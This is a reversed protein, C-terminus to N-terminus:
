AIMQSYRSFPHHTKKQNHTFQINFHHRSTISRKAISYTQNRIFISIILLSSSNMNTGVSIILYYYVSLDVSMILYLYAWSHVRDYDIWFVYYLKLIDCCNRTTRDYDTMRSLVNMMRTNLQRDSALPNANQTRNNATTCLTYYWELIFSVHKSPFTIQAFARMMFRNSCDGCVCVCVCLRVRKASHTQIRNTKFANRIASVTLLESRHNIQQSYKCQPPNDFTHLITNLHITM